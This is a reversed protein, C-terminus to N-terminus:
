VHITEHAQEEKLETIALVPLVKVFILFFTFVLPHAQM